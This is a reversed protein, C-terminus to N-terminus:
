KSLLIFKSRRPSLTYALDSLAYRAMVDGIANINRNLSYEDHASFPLLVLRPTSAESTVSRNFVLRESAQRRYLEDEERHLETDSFDNTSHVPLSGSSFVSGDDLICHANAGSYAFSNV